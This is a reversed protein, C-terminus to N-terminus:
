ATCGDRFLGETETNSLLWHLGKEFSSFSAIVINNYNMQMVDSSIKEAVVESFLDDPLVFAIKRLKTQNMCHGILETTWKQDSMNPAVLRTADIIWCVTPKTEIVRCAQELGQRYEASSIGRLWQCQVLQLDPDYQIDIYPPSSM